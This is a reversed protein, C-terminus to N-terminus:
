RPEGPGSPPEQDEGAPRGWPDSAPEGSHPQAPYPQQGPYPPQGPQPQGPYPQALYGPAGPYLPYPVSPDWGGQRSAKVARFYANSAPLALLILAALLALVMLVSLTTSVPQYYGPLAESLKDQIEQPSPAGGTGGTTGIMGTAANSVLGLGSCCSLLGGVSWTTVRSGQRGRNNFIGLIVMGAAFLLNIVVNGVVIIVIVSEAGEATTGAYASRYVELTRSLYTLTFLSGLLAIGAAAYVLYTSTSVTTPRTSPAPAGPYMPVAM